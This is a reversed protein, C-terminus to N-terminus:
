HNEGLKLINPPRYLLGVKKLVERGLLSKRVGLTTYASCLIQSNNIEILVKSTRLEIKHGLATKAIAKPEELLYLELEVYTSLPILVGGQFGTDIILEMKTAKGNVPNRITTEIIPMYNLDDNKLYEKL